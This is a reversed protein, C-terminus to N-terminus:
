FIKLLAEPCMGYNSYTWHPPECAVFQRSKFRDARRAHSIGWRSRQMSCVDLMRSYHRRPYCSGSVYAVLWAIYRYCLMSVSEHFWQQLPFDILIVYESHTNTARPMWCSIRTCWTTVQSKGQEVVNEVNDWLRCWKLFFNGLMFHTHKCRKYLVNRIIVHFSPSIVPFTYQDECLTCTIRRLNWSVQIQQASKLFISM